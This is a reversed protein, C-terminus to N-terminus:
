CCTLGNDKAVAACRQRVGYTKTLQDRIAVPKQMLEQIAQNDLKLEFLPLLLQAMNDRGMRRTLKKGRTIQAAGM